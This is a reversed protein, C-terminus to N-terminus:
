ARRMRLRRYLVIGASLLIASLLATSAVRLGIEALGAGQLLVRRLAEAAHTPPLLDVIQIPHGAISGIPIEPVSFVAGSVLVMFVGMLGGLNAAEGDNRAFCATLLGLGVASLCLLLVVVIALVLPGRGAFGLARAVGLTLPVQVVAVAMQALTVGLLLERPRACTLRLRQLTGGENERVLTQATTIVLLMTGFVIMGPV